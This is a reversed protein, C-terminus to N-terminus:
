YVEAHRPAPRSNRKTALCLERYYPVALPRIEVKYPIRKPIMSPLIGITGGYGDLEMCGNLIERVM